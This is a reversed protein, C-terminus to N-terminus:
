VIIIARSVFVEPRDIIKFGCKKVIGETEEFAKKPVHFKPEVILAKGGPKLISKVEKFLTEQNPVEHVMYIALLFDVQGSFGIRSEECKHLKIRAEYKTNRIKNRVIELMEEQLDAAIVQGAAGVLEAAAVSFFGPGCGLDFVTMGNKIYPKLIKGPNQVLRRIGNDLGGALKASCVRRSSDM